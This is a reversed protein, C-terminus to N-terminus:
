LRRYKAMGVDKDNGVYKAVGQRELVNRFVRGFVRPSPLRDWDHEYLKFLSFEDGSSLQKARDIAEALVPSQRIRVRRQPVSAPTPATAPVASVQMTVQQSEQEGGPLLSDLNHSVQELLTPVSIQLEQSKKIFRGLAAEPVPVMLSNM